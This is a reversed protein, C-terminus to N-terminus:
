LRKASKELEDLIDELESSLAEAKSPQWDALAADLRARAEELRRINPGLAAAVEAPLIGLALRDALAASLELAGKTPWAPGSGAFALPHLRPWRREVEALDFTAASVRIQIVRGM